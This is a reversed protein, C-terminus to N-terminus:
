LLPPVLMFHLQPLMSIIAQQLDYLSLSLSLMPIATDTIVGDSLCMAM